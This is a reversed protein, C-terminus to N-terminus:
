DELSEKLEDMSHYGKVSTDKVISGSQEMASVTTENPIHLKLEFPIGNERIVQRLFINIATTMTLGLEEFIKEANAKVEKDTRINLNTTEM